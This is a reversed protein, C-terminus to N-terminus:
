KKQAEQMPNTGSSAGRISQQQKYLDFRSPTFRRPWSNNVEDIDATERNPDLRISAVEKDKAFVKTVKQEDKRWIYAPIKDVEKTGDTFTWEVILPM